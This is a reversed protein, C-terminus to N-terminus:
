RTRRTPAKTTSCDWKLGRSGVQLDYAYLTGPELPPVEPALTITVLAIHLKKGFQRTPHFNTAVPPDGSAVSGAAAGAVQVGRWITLRVEFVPESLAIWVSCARPEVRRVIPGALVLPLVRDVM